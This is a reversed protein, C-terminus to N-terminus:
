YYYYYYYYRLAPTNLEPRRRHKWARQTESFVVRRPLQTFLLL